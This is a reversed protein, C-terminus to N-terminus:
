HQHHHLPPFSGLRISNHYDQFLHAPLGPIVLGIIRMVIMFWGEKYEEGRLWPIGLSRIVEWGANLNKPIAWLLNFYNKNPEETLVKGQYFSNFYLCDGFHKYLLTSDDYPLRPVIDNCYVYRLYRIDYEKMKEEMYSGFKRDGVRPQGFTYVGEIRDLILGEEHIILVGVFLIALAGGLSHGTVIFKANENKELMEKLVRRIEYYAYLHNTESAIQNPWGDKQLGLANTFGSHFKGIGDFEYWSIDVDTCIDDADFPNTGRFAVVITNPDTTTDKLVFAQTSKKNLYENRFNYCDVCEMKWHDTVVSKICEENEYSLKSAMFALASNYKRSGPEINKDMEIRWDCNAGASLFSASSREPLMVEGKLFKFFLSLIGGNNQLLNLWTEIANGLKELPTRLNLFIKQAFVSIFILWRHSFDRLREEEPCEVFDRSKVDSSFLLYILGFWSAKEPDVVLKKGCVNEGYYRDGM